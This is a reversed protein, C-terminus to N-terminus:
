PRLRMGDEAFSVPGAYNERISKLVADHMAETSPSLHSLLLAHVGAKKAVEGIVFFRFMIPWNV